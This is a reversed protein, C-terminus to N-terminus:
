KGKGEAAVAQLAEEWEATSIPEASRPWPHTLQFVMLTLYSITKPRGRLLVLADRARRKIREQRDM